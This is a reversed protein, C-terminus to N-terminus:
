SNTRDMPKFYAQISSGSRLLPQHANNSSASRTITNIHEEHTIPTAFQTISTQKPPTSSYSSASALPPTNTISSDAGQVTTSGINNVENKDKVSTHPQAVTAHKKRPLAAFISSM